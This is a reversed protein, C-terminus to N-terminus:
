CGALALIENDDLVYKPTYSMGQTVPGIFIGRGHGFEGEILERFWHGSQESYANRFLSIDGVLGPISLWFHGDYALSSAAFDARLSAASKDSHYIRKGNISLNGATVYFPFTSVAKLRICWIATIHACAGASVEYPVQKLIERGTHALLAIDNESLAHIKFREADEHSRAAEIVNIIGM